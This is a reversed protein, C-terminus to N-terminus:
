GQKLLLHMNAVLSAFVKDAQLAFVPLTLGITFFALAQKVPLGLYFINMQPVIKALLALAVDALLLTGMIPLAIRIAISFMGASLSILKEPMLNNTAFGGVPVLGFLGQIGLLVQHHSNSALFLLTALLTYVHELTSGRNDDAMAMNELGIGLQMGVLTGAMNIATFVINASFGAIAGVLVEQGIAVIYLWGEPPTPLNEITPLLIFAILLGLGIKPVTPIIRSGFFPMAMLMAGVRAAVLLFLQLQIPSASFIDLAM